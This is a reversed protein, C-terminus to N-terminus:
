AASRRSMLCACGLALLALSGPEPIVAAFNQAVEEGTLVDDYIRLIAIEGVFEGYTAAADIDGAVGGSETGGPQNQGGLESVNAGGFSGFAFTDSSDAIATATASASNVYLNHDGALVGGQPAGNTTVVVQIFDDIDSSVLTHTLLVESPDGSSGDKMLVVVQDDLLHISLGIANGGTEFITEGGVLDTPKFWVEFSGDPVLGNFAGVSTPVDSNDFAWAQTITTASGTVANLTLGATAWTASTDAAPNSSQWAQGQVATAGDWNFALDDAVISASSHAVGLCSVISAATILTMSRHM